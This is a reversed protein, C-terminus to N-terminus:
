INNFINGYHKVLINLAGVSKLPTIAFRVFPPSAYKTVDALKMSEM